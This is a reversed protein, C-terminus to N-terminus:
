SGKGMSWGLKGDCFPCGPRYAGSEDDFDHGAFSEGCCECTILYDFVEDCKTCRAGYGNSEVCNEDDCCLCHGTILPEEGAKIARHSAESYECVHCQNELHANGTDTDLARYGCAPCVSFAGAGPLSKVHIDFVTQFYAKLGHLITEVKRMRMDTASFLEIWDSSRILSQLHYWAILLEKGIRQKVAPRNLTPHFFHVLQNRHIRLKSFAAIASQPIPRQYLMKLKEAADELGVTKQKGSCFEKWNASDPKQIVAKWDQSLLCAKIILEVGGYFHLVSFNIEQDFEKLGKELFSFANDIMRDFLDQASIPVITPFLQKGSWQASRQLRSNSLKDWHLLDVKFILPLADIENWLQTFTSDSMAPAIVALDIDSGDKYNGKGRSGFILVQHIDPYHSFVRRFDNVIASSLGYILSNGQAM